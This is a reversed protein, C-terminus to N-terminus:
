KIKQWFVIKYGDPDKLVFERNGWPWDRPETKPEIGAAKLEQYKKDVDEVSLNVYLGKGKKDALADTAFEGSSGKASVLMLEFDDLKLTAMMDSSGVVEFGIKQYFGESVKQDQVWFTLGTFKM